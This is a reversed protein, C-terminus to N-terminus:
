RELGCWNDRPCYSDCLTTCPGQDCYGSCYLTGCSVNGCVFGTCEYNPAIPNPLFIFEM